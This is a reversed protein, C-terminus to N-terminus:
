AGFRRWRRADEDLEMRGLVEASGGSSAGDGGSLLRMLGLRPRTSGSASASASGSAVASAGASATASDGVPSSDDAISSASTQTGQRATGSRLGELSAMFAKRMHRLQEHIEAERTLMPDSAGHRSDTTGTTTPDTMLGSGPGSTCSHNNPRQCTEIRMLLGAEGQVISVCAQM